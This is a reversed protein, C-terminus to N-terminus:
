WGSRGARAATAAGAPRHDVAHDDALVGVQGRDRQDLRGGGALVDFPHHDGQLAAGLRREREQDDLKSSTTTVRTFELQDPPRGSSSTAKAKPPIQQSCRRLGPAVGTRNQKSRRLLLGDQAAPPVM